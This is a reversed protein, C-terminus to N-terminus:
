SLDPKFAAMAIGSRTEGCLPKGKMWFRTGDQPTLPRDLHDVEPWTGLFAHKWGWVIAREVDVSTKGPIVLSNPLVALLIKSMLTPSASLMFGMEYVTM